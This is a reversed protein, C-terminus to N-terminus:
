TTPCRTPSKSASGSPPWTVSRPRCADDDPRQTSLILFIGLKRGLREVYALDETIQAGYSPHMIANQIEDFTACIPRLRLRRQAALERTLKGDPRVERPLAKLAPGRRDM